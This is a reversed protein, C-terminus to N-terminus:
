IGQPKRKTNQANAGSVLDDNLCVSINGAHHPDGNVIGGRNKDLRVSVMTDIRIFNFCLDGFLGLGNQHYVKVSGAAFHVLNHGNGSFMIEPQHFITGLAM